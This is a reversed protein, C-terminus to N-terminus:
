SGCFKVANRFNCYFINVDTYNLLKCRQVFCFSSIHKAAINNSTVMHRGWLQPLNIKM